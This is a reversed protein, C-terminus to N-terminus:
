CKIQTKCFEAMPTVATSDAILQGVDTIQFELALRFEFTSLFKNFMDGGQTGSAKLGGSDHDYDLRIAALPQPAPGGLVKAGAVPDYVSGESCCYVVQSRRAPQKSSDIFNVDRHRYNIFSVSRSPHSMKHACIASFAVVSREPGVGGEWAYVEGDETQLTVDSATQKGLNMLFCPTTVYPYFFVYTEGTKLDGVTIPKGEANVLTAPRYSKVPGRGEALLRPNASVAAM